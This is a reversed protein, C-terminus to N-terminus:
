QCANFVYRIRCWRYVGQEAVFKISETENIATTAADEILMREGQLIIEVANRLTKDLVSITSSDQNRKRSM